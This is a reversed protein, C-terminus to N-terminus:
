EDADDDETMIRELVVGHELMVAVGLVMALAEHKTFREQEAAHCARRIARAIMADREDRESTPM